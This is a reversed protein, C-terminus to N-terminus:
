KIKLNPDCGYQFSHDNPIFWTTKNFVNVFCKGEKKFLPSYCKEKKGFHFCFIQFIDWIIGYLNNKIKIM